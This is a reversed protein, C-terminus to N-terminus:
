KNKKELYYIGGAEKIESRLIKSECNPCILFPWGGKLTKLKEHCECQFSMTEDDPLEKAFEIPESGDYEEMDNEDDMELIFEPNFINMIGPVRVISGIEAPQSSFEGNEGFLSEVAIHSVQFIGYGLFHFTKLVDDTGYRTIKVEYVGINASM